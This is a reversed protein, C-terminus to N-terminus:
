EKAGDAGMPVLIVNSIYEGDNLTPLTMRLTQTLTTANPRFIQANALTNRITDDGTTTTKKTDTIEFYYKYQSWTSTVSERVATIWM